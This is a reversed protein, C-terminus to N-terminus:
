RLAAALGVTARCGDLGIAAPQRCLLLLLAPLSQKSSEQASQALRRAARLLLAAQLDFSPLLLPQLLLLEFIIPHAVLIPCPEGPNPHSLLNHKVLLHYTLPLLRSRAGM